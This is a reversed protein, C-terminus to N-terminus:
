GQIMALLIIKTTVLLHSYMNGLKVLSFQLPALISERFLDQRIARNSQLWQPIEVILHGNPPPPINPRPTPVTPYPPLRERVPTFNDKQLSPNVQRPTPLETRSSPGETRVPRHPFREKAPTQNGKQLTSNNSSTQNFKPTNTGQQNNSASVVKSQSDDCKQLKSPPESSVPKEKGGYEDQTISSITPSATRKKSETTITAAPPQKSQNSLASRTENLLSSDSPGKSADEMQVSCSKGADKPDSERKNDVPNETEAAAVKMGETESRYKIIDCSVNDFMQADNNDTFLIVTYTKVQAQRTGVTYGVIEGEFVEGSQNFQVNIPTGAAYALQQETLLEPSNENVNRINCVEYIFQKSGLDMFVTNVRGVRLSTILKINSRSTVPTTQSNFSYIVRCGVPYKSFATMQDEGLQILQARSITPQIVPPVISKAKTSSDIANAEHKVVNDGGTVDIVEVKVPADGAPKGRLAFIVMKIAERVDVERWGGSVNDTIREVFRGKSEERISQVIAKAIRLREAKDTASKFAGKNFNVIRQFSANGAHHQDSPGPKVIVDNSNLHISSATSSTIATADTPASM